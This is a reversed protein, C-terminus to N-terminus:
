VTSWQAFAPRACLPIKNKQGYWIKGAKGLKVETCEDDKEYGEMREHARTLSLGKEM